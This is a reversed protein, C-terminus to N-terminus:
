FITYIFPAAASGSILLLLGLLLIVALIPLLWWKKNNKLFHWFDSLLGPEAGHEAAQEFDSKRPENM